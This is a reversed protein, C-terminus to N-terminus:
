RGVAGAFFGVRWPDTEEASATAHRRQAGRGEAAGM